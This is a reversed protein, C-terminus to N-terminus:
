KKRTVAVTLLLGAAALSGWLIFDKVDTSAGTVQGPSVPAMGAQARKLNINALKQANIALLVNTAANSIGEIIGGAKPAQATTPTGTAPTQPQDGFNYSPVIKKLKMADVTIPQLTTNAGLFM